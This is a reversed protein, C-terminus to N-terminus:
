HGQLKTEHSADRHFERIIVIIFDAHVLLGVYECIMWVASPYIHSVDVKTAAVGTIGKYATDDDNDDSGNEDDSVDNRTGYCYFLSGFTKM